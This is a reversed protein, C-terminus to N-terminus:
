DYVDNKLAMFELKKKFFYKKFFPPKFFFGKMCPEDVMVLRIGERRKGCAKCAPMCPCTDIDKYFLMTENVSRWAGQPSVCFFFAFFKSIPVHAQLVFILMSQLM